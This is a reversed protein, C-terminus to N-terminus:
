VGRNWMGGKKRRSVCLLRQNASLPTAIPKNAFFRRCSADRSPLNTAIAERLSAMSDDDGSASLHQCIAATAVYFAAIALRPPVNNLENEYNVGRQNAVRHLYVPDRQHLGSTRSHCVVFLEDGYQKV